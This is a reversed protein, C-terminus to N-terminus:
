ISPDVFRYEGKYRTEEQSRKQFIADVSGVAPTNLSPTSTASGISQGGTVRAFLWINWLLSAGIAILAFTVLALWDRVPRVHDGYRLARTIPKLKALLDNM